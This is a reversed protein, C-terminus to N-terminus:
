PVTVTSVNFCRPLSHSSYKLPFAPQAIFFFLFTTRRCMEVHPTGAPPLVFVYLSSPPFCLRNFLHDAFLVAPTHDQVSYWRDYYMGLGHRLGQDKTALPFREFCVVCIRTVLQPPFRPAVLPSFFLGRWFPLRPIQRPSPHSFPLKDPFRPHSM